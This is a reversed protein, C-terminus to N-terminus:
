TNSDDIAPLEILQLSAGSFAYVMGASVITYSHDPYIAIEKMRAGRLIVPPCGEKCDRIESVNTLTISDALGDIFVEINM